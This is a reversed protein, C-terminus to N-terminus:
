GNNTGSKCLLEIERQALKVPIVNRIDYITGDHVVRWKPVIQANNPSWRIRIRTDLEALPQDGILAERGRIPAVEARLTGFDAWTTVFGGSSPSGEVEVPYQVQVEHRLVGARM